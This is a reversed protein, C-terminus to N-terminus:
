GILIFDWSYTGAPIIVVSQLVLLVASSSALNLAIYNALAAASSSPTISVKPTSSGVVQPAITFVINGSSIPATTIMTVRFAVNTPNADESFDITSISGSVGTVVPGNLNSNFGAITQLTADGVEDLIVFDGNISHAIIQGNYTIDHFSVDADFGSILEGNFFIGNENIEFIATPSFEFILYGGTGGGAGYQGGDFIWQVYPRGGGDINWDCVLGFYGSDSIQMPFGLVAPNLYNGGLM